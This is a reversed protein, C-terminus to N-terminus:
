PTPCNVKPNIRYKVVGVVTGKSGDADITLIGNYNGPTLLDSEEQSFRFSVVGLTIGPGLIGDSCFLAETSAPAAVALEVTQDTLDYPEGTTSNFIQVVTVQLTDGQTMEIITSSTLCAM